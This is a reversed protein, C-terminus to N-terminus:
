KLGAHRMFNEIEKITMESVRENTCSRTVDLKRYHRLWDGGSECVGNICPQDCVRMYTAM